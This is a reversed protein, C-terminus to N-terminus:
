LAYKDEDLYDNSLYFAKSVYTLEGREKRFRFYNDNNDIYEGYLTSRNHYNYIDVIDTKEVAKIGYEYGDVVVHMDDPLDKILEKLEKINM